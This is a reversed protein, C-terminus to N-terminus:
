IAGCLDRVRVRVRIRIRIRIGIRVRVWLHYGVRECLSHWLVPVVTQELRNRSRTHDQVAFHEM